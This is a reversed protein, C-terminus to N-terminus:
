AKTKGRRLRLMVYRRLLIVSPTETRTIDIEVIEIEEFETVNRFCRVLNDKAAVSIGDRCAILTVICLGIM